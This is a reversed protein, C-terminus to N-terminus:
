HGKLNGKPIQIMVIVRCLSNGDSKSIAVIYWIPGQTTQVAVKVVFASFLIGFYSAKVLLRDGTLLVSFYVRTCYVGVPHLILSVWVVNSKRHFLRWSPLYRHLGPVTVNADREDRM